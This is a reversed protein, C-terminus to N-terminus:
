ITSSNSCPDTMASRLAVLAEDFAFDDIHMFVAAAHKGLVPRLLHKNERCVRVATLDDGVLLTELDRVLQRARTPDAIDAGTQRDSAATEQLSLATGIAAAAGKLTHVIRRVTAFDARSLADRLADSGPNGAFSGLLRLYVHARGKVPRLGATIDLDGIAEVRRLQELLEPSAQTELGPSAASPLVPEAAPSPLWHLLAAYLTEPDVPKAIHDNMGAALCAERDEGFANATMALVPTAANNPLARIMRTATLGDMTPMQMDMLILDYVTDEARGVAVQGNEALDVELGVDALLDLAVERNIPNDEALLVRGGGLRRLLAESEGIDHRHGTARCGTFAEQLAGILRSPTLPKRLVVSYGSRRLAEGSVAESDATLLLRVPQRSLPLDALRRGVELGDLGPMRWDIVLLDYPVGLSDAESVRALAGAGDSEATVQLGALDLFTSGKGVESDVGIRGGM